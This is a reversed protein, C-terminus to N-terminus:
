KLSLNIYLLVNGSIYYSKREHAEKSTSFVQLKTNDDQNRNTHQLHLRVEHGLNTESEQAWQGVETDASCLRCARSM